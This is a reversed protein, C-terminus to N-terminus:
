KKQYKEKLKQIINEADKIFEEVIFDITAYSYQYTPAAGVTNIYCLRENEKIGYYNSFLQFHYQNFTINIGQRNLKKTIERNCAKMTYKHTKNPDQLEKVIAVGDKGEKDIHMITTANNKNKTIYHYHEIQISFGDNNYSSMKSINSNTNILKDAIERPYKARLKQEDFPLINVSLTLFNQSIESGIDINHFETMKEIYNFICSQFLPVYVMEYEETIFHTSTNRLEIIKELNLRLPAKKNTFTKAICNELSLTRSQNDKYYISTYGFTNIMHAKLLLEWANCIFISFGEVRYRISPKNYLEIAVLFAEKSKEILKKYLDDKM